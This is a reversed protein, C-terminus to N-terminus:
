IDRVQMRILKLEYEIRMMGASKNTHSMEYENSFCRHATPPDHKRQYFVGFQVKDIHWWDNKLTDIKMEREEELNPDLYPTKKLLTTVKTEPKSRGFYLRLIKDQVVISPGHGNKTGKVLNEGVSRDPLILKGSGNNYIGQPAKNLM